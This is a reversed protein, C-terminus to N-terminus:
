KRRVPRTRTRPKSPSLVPRIGESALYDLIANLGPKDKAGITGISYGDAPKMENLMDLVKLVMEDNKQQSVGAPAQYRDRNSNRNRM